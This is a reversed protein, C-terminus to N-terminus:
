APAECAQLPQVPLRLVASRGGEERGGFVLDTGHARAIARCVALALGSGRPGAPAGRGGNGLMAEEEGPVCSRGYDYVAVHMWDEDAQVVVDIPGESSKLAYDLLNHLLQALLVPDAEVLPLGAAVQSRIRGEPDRQRVRALVSGVIEEISQWDLHIEGAHDLRALQLTNETLVVLHAAENLICQTLRDRDAVDLKHGQEHLSSSATAMAALPTRFDDPMGALFTSQARHWRASEKAAQLSTALALRSLAQGLLAGIAQVLERQRADAAAAALGGALCSQLAQEVAGPASGELARALFRRGIREVDSRQAVGALETALEQLLRARAEHLQGLQAERQLAAGRQIIVLSVVLMAALTALNEGPDGGFASRRPEFFFNLLAVSGFCCALAAAPRTSRSAVVVALVYVMAQSTLSLQKDLLLNLSTALLLLGAVVWGDRWRGRNTTQGTLSPSSM